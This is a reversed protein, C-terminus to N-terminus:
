LSATDPREPGPFIASILALVTAVPIFSTPPFMCYLGSGVAAWIRPHTPFNLRGSLWWGALAGAPLGLVVLPGLTVFDVADIVVASLVTLLRKGLRQGVGGSPLPGGEETAMPEAEVEVIDAPDREPTSEPSNSNMPVQM